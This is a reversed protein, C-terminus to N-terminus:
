IQIADLQLLLIHIAGSNIAIRAEKPTAISFVGFKREGSRKFSKLSEKLKPVKYDIGILSHGKERLFEAAELINDLSEGTLLFIIKEKEICEIVNRYLENSSPTEIAM